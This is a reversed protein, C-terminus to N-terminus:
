VACTSESLDGKLNISKGHRNTGPIGTVISAVLQAIYGDSDVQATQNTIGRFHVLRIRQPLVVKEYFNRLLEKREDSSMKDIKTLSTEM